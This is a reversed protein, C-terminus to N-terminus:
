PTRGSCPLAAPRPRGAAGAAFTRILSGGGFASFLIGLSSAGGLREEALVAGGVIMPEIAALNVAALVLLMTRILPRGLRM